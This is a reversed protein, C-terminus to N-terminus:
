AVTVRWFMWIIHCLGRNNVTYSAVFFCNIIAQFNCYGATAALFNFHSISASIPTSFAQQQKAQGM